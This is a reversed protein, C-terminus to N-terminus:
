ELGTMNTTFSFKGNSTSAGTDGGSTVTHTATKKVKRKKQPPEGQKKRSDALLGGREREKIQIASLLEEAILQGGLFYSFICVYFLNIYICKM